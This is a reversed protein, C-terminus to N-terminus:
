KQYALCSYTVFLETRQTIEIKQFKYFIRNQDYILFISFYVQKRIITCELHNPQDITNTFKLLIVMSIKLNHSFMYQSIPFKITKSIIM